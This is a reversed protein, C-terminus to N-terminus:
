RAAKRMEKLPNEGVKGGSFMWDMLEQKKDKSLTVIAAGPDFRTVKDYVATREASELPNLEAAEAIKQDLAKKPIASMKAMNIDGKELQIIRGIKM